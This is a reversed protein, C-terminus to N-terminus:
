KPNQKADVPLRHFRFLKSSLVKLLWTCRPTAERHIRRTEGPLKNSGRRHVGLSVDSPIGAM